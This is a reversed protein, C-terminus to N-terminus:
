FWFRVGAVVSTRSVADGDERAFEATKGYAREWTVGVYPALERRIEYRLRLGSELTSVGAGIGRPRDDKGYMEVEVLPQLILRNTLLFEYEVEVRAHTRLGEGVYATAQVEFWYPALGQVGFAAWTRSPGPRIDHRVGAVLDWWPSIARGYLVHADAADLRRDHVEGESRFWLRHVDGGVWGTNDWAASGAGAPQWELQDLLVYYHVSRDHVAHGELDHPFAAARDEDTVPPVTTGHVHTPQQTQGPPPESPAHHEHGPQPPSPPAPQQPPSTQPPSTQPSPHQHQPQATSSSAAAGWLAIAASAVLCPLRRRM